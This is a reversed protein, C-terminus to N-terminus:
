RMPNGSNLEEVFAVLVARDIWGRRCTDCDVRMSMAKSHRFSKGFTLKFSGCYPCRNGGNTVYEQKKDDTLM